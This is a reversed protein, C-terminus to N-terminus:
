PRASIEGSVQQLPLDYYDALRAACSRGHTATSLCAVPAYVFGGGQGRYGVGCQRLRAVAGHIAGRGSVEVFCEIQAAAVRQDLWPLMLEGSRKAVIAGPGVEEHRRRARSLAIVFIPLLVLWAVLMFGVIAKPLAFGREGVVWPAATMVLLMAVVLLLWRWFPFASQRVRIREDDEEWRAGAAVLRPGLPQQLDRAAPLRSFALHSPLPGGPIM